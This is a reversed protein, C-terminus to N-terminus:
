SGEACWRRFSVSGGSSRLVGPRAHALTYEPPTPPTRSADRRRKKWGSLPSGPWIGSTEIAPVPRVRSAPGRTQRCGDKKESRRRGPAVKRPDSGDFLGPRFAPGPPRPRAPTGSRTPIVLSRRTGAGIPLRLSGRSGRLNAVSVASAIVPGKLGRSPELSTLSPAGLVEGSQQGAAVAPAPSNWPGGAASRLLTNGTERFARRGRPGAPADSPRARFLTACSCGAQAGNSCLAAPAM